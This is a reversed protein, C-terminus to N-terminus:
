TVIYSLIYLVIRTYFLFKVNRYSEIDRFFKTCLNNVYLEIEKKTNLNVIENRTNIDLVLKVQEYLNWSNKNNFLNVHEAILSYAYNIKEFDTYIREIRYGLVCNYFGDINEGLITIVIYINILVIFYYISVCIIFFKIIYIVILFYNVSNNSFILNIINNDYFKIKEIILIIIYIILFIFFVSLLINLNLLNSNFYLKYTVGIGVGVGIKSKVLLLLIINIVIIM